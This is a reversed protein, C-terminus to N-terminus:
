DIKVNLSFFSTEENIKLFEYELKNGSKRAIEIMGLGATGKASVKSNKLRDQYYLKLEEKDKSNIEDLGVQMIGIKSNDIYNGTRILFSGQEKGILILVSKSEIQEGGISLPSEEVHHYLNQLSEVLISFVKKKTQSSEEMSDMKLEMIHLISNLLEATIIGKFSLIVNEKEMNRYLNYVYNLSM